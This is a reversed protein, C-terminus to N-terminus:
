SGHARGAGPMAANLIVVFMHRMQCYVEGVLAEDVKKITDHDLGSGSCGSGVSLAEIESLAALIKWTELLHGYFHSPMQQVMMHVVDLLPSIDDDLLLSYNEPDGLDSAVDSLDGDGMFLVDMDLCDESSLDSDVLGPPGDDNDVFLVNM